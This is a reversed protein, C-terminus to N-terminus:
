RGTWPAIKGTISLIVAAVAVVAGVLTFVAKVLVDFDQKTMRHQLWQVFSVLQCLGTHAPSPSIILM